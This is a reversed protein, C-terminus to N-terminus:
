LDTVICSFIRVFVFVVLGIDIRQNDVILGYVEEAKDIMEVFAKCM